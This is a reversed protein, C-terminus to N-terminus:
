DGSGIAERLRQRRLTLGEIAGGEGSHAGARLARPFLAQTDRGLDHGRRNRVRERGPLRLRAVQHAPIGANAREERQVAIPQAVADHQALHPQCALPTARRWPLWVWGEAQVATWM